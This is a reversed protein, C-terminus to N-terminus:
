ELLKETAGLLLTLSPRLADPLRGDRDCQPLLRSAMSSYTDAPGRGGCLPSLVDILTRLSGHDDCGAPLYTLRDEDRACTQRVLRELWRASAAIKPLDLTEPTDSVTHYHRSRGATLFLFPIERSLFAHYDSLPPMIASDLPRVRLGREATALQALQESTGRSREAGLAFLSETVASPLDQGGGVRHGILDMGIMLDIKALPVTPHRAFHESGMAPSMFYPPEESDFAAILVGRGWPRRAALSRAVEVLVSVAAANDDAGRYIRSGSAGLHDYHASVLVWRDSDGPLAALVNAGGCGPIAQESPDLGAQRLATVVASRAALGGRSGPARGACTDSCLTEVLSLLRAQRPDM